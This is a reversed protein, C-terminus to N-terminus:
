SWFCIKRSLKKKWVNNVNINEPDKSFEQFDKIIKNHNEEAEIEFIRKKLDDIIIEDQCNKPYKILNNRKNMLKELSSKIPKMNKKGIRIKKFSKNCYKNLLEIWNEIQGLIPIAM